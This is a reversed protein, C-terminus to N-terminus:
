GNQRYGSIFQGDLYIGGSDYLSHLRQIEVGENIGDSPTPDTDPHPAHIDEPPPSPQYGHIEPSPQYGHIEAPPSAPQCETGGEQDRNEMGDRQDTRQRRKSRSPNVAGERISLGRRLLSPTLLKEGSSRTSRRRPPTSRQRYSVSSSNGKKPRGGKGRKKSPEAPTPPEAPLATDENQSQTVTTANMTGTQGGSDVVLSTAVAYVPPSLPSQRQEQQEMNLSTELSLYL